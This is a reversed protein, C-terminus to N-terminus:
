TNNCQKAVYKCWQILQADLNPALSNGKGGLDTPKEFIKNEELHTYLLKIYWTNSHTSTACIDQKTSPTIPYTSEIIKNTIIDISCGRHDSHIKFNFPKYGSEKISSLINSSVMIYDIRKSKLVYTAAERELGHLHAQPDVSKNETTISHIGTAWEQM